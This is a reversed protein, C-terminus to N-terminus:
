QEPWLWRLLHSPKQIKVALKTVRRNAALLYRLLVPLQAAM